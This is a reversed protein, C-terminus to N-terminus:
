AAGVEIPGTVFPTGNLKPSNRRTAQELKDILTPRPHLLRRNDHFYPLYYSHDHANCLPIHDTEVHVDFLNLMTDMSASSFSTSYPVVFVYLPKDNASALKFRLTFNESIESYVFCRYM